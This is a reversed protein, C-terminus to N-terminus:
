TRAAAPADSPTWFTPSPSSRRCAVTSTTQGPNQRRARWCWPTVTTKSCRRRWGRRRRWSGLLQCSMRRRRAQQKWDSPRVWSTASGVRHTGPEVTCRSSTRTVLLGTSMESTLTESASKRYSWWRTQAVTAVRATFGTTTRADRLMQEISVALNLLAKRWDSSNEFGAVVTSEYTSCSSPTRVLSSSAIAGTWSRRRRSDLDVLLHSDSSAMAALRRRRRSCRRLRRVPVSTSRCCHLRADHRWDSWWRTVFLSSGDARETRQYLSGDAITYLAHVVTSWRCSRSSVRVSSSFRLRHLAKELKKSSLIDLSCSEILSLNRASDITFCALKDSRGCVPQVNEAKLGTVSPSTSLTRWDEGSLDERISVMGVENSM